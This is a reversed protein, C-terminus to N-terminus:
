RMLERTADAFKRTCRDLDILAVFLVDKCARIKELMHIREPTPDMKALLAEARVCQSFIWGAGNSLEMAKATALEVSGKLRKEVDIGTFASVHIINSGNAAHKDLM